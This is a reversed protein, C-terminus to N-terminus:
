SFKGRALDWLHRTQAWDQKWLRMETKLCHGDLLYCRRCEPPAQGRRIARRLRRMSPHNWKEMVTGERLRGLSGYKERFEHQAMCCYAVEGDVEVMLMRWLNPCFCGQGAELSGKTEALNAYSPAFGGEEGQLLDEYDSGTPTYLLTVGKERAYPEAEALARSAERHSVAQSRDPADPLYFVTQCTVQHAKWEAALDIVNRIESLSDKMLTMNLNIVPFLAKEADRLDRLREMNARVKEFDAGLRLKEFNEKSGADISANLILPKNGVFARAAKEDVMTGNTILSVATDFSQVYAIMEFIDPHLLPEGLGAFAVMGTKQFAGELRKLDEWQLQGKPLSVSPAHRLCHPCRLNCANTVALQIYLPSALCSARGLGIDVGSLLTNFFRSFPFAM